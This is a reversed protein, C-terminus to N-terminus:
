VASDMSLVNLHFSFLYEKIEGFLKQNRQINRSKNANSNFGNKKLTM